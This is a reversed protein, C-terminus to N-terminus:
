RASGALAADIRAVAQALTLEGTCVPCDAHYDTAIIRRATRVAKAEDIGPRLDDLDGAALRHDAVLHSLRLATM